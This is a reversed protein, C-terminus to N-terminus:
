LLYSFLKKTRQPLLIATEAVSPNAAHDSSPAYPLHGTLLEYTICGLAYQGSRRSVIEEFQEPAMYGPTDARSAPQTNAAKLVMALGFDALLANDHEDFLINEPKLDRHIIGHQHAYHLAEAVQSVVTLVDQLSLPGQAKKLRDRLSGHAAYQSILYPIEHDVGGEHISLAGADYVPLCHPHKLMELFQAEQRFRRHEKPSALYTTHLVKIAVQRELLPHYGYYVTSFGGRAIRTGVRYNGIEAGVYDDTSKM